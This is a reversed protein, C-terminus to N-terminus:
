MSEIQILLGKMHEIRVLAQDREEDILAYKVIKAQNLLYLTCAAYLSDIQDSGGPFFLEKSTM